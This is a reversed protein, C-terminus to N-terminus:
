LTGPVLRKGRIRLGAFRDGDSRPVGAIRAFVRTTSLSYRSPRVQRRRLRGARGQEDVSAIGFLGFLFDIGREIVNIM